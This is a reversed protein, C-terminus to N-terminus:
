PCLECYEKWSIHNKLFSATAIAKTNTWGKANLHSYIKFSSFRRAQAKAEKINGNILNEIMAEM